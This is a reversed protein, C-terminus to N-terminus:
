AVRIRGRRYVRQRNVIELPMQGNWDANADPGVESLRAGRTEVIRSLLFDKFTQDTLCFARTHGCFGDFGIAHPAIQAEARDLTGDAVNRLQAATADPKLFLPQFGSGRIDTRASKDYVMNDSAMGIYRNLDSSAQNVSVGFADTLDGRNM